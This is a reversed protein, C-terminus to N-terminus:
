QVPPPVDAIINTRDLTQMTALPAFPMDRPTIGDDYLLRWRIPKEAQASHLFVAEFGGQVTRPFFTQELRREYLKGLREGDNWDQLEAWLGQM